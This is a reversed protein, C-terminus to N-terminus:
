QENCVSPINCYATYKELVAQQEKMHAAYMDRCAAPNMLM